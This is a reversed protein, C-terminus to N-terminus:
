KLYVKLLKVLNDPNNGKLFYDNFGTQFVNFINESEDEYYYSDANVINGTTAIIPVQDKHPIKHKEEIKRIEKAAKNGEIYPMNIDTLILNFSSKQQNNKIQTELDKKYIEILEKGDVAPTVSLGITELANKTVKLNTENDDAFIIKYKTLDIAEQKIYSLDIERNPDLATLKSITRLLINHNKDEENNIYYHILNKYPKKFDEFCYNTSAIIACQKNINKASRLHRQLLEEKKSELDLPANFIILKYNNKFILNGLNPDDVSTAECTIDLNDEIVQIIKSEQDITLIKQKRYNDINDIEEKSPKPFYLSFKTFENLKSECKIHGGFLKMNRQCFALGLGSGKGSAKTTFFDEFVKDINEQAIGPGNYDTISIIVYEKEKYEGTEENKLKLKQEEIAIEVRLNQYENIYVLANKLINYITFTLREEVAKIYVEKHGGRNNKFSNLDISVAKRAIDSKYGYREIIDPILNNLKIFDLDNPNIAQDKLDGLIINIINNALYISDSIKSTLDSLSDKNRRYKLLVNSLELNTEQPNQSNKAAQQLVDFNPSNFLDDDKNNLIQKIQSGILNISNLPNRVEHAISGALVKYEHSKKKITELTQLKYKSNLHELALGIHYSLNDFILIDEHTFFHNKDREKILAFGIVNNQYIFPVLSSSNSADLLERILNGADQYCTTNRLKSIELHYKNLNPERVNQPNLTFEYDIRNKESEDESNIYNKNIAVFNLQLPLKYRFLSDLFNNIKTIDNQDNLKQHIEELVVNLKKFEVNLLHKQITQFKSMFFQYTECSFILFSIHLIINTINNKIPFLFYYFSYLLLYCIALLMLTLIRAISKSIIISSNFFRYKTIGYAMFIAYLIVSFNAIPYIEIRYYQFIITCGGCYGSLLAILIHKAKPNNKISKSILYFSYLVNALFYPFYIYKFITTTVPSYKFEMFPSVSPIFYPTLSTIIMLSAVVVSNIVLFKTHKIGSLEATFFQSLVAILYSLTLNIRTYALASHYDNVSISLGYFIYFTGIALNFIIFTKYRNGALYSLLCLGYTGIIGLFVSILILSIM